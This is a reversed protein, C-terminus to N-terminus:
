ALLLKSGRATYPFKSQRSLHRCRSVKLLLFFVIKKCFINEMYVVVEKYCPEKNCLKGFIEHYTVCLSYM